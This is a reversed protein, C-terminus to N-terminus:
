KPLGSDQSGGLDEVDVEVAERDDVHALGIGVLDEGIPFRPLALVGEEVRRGGQSPRPIADQDDVVILPQATPRRVLPASELAEQGFNGHLV